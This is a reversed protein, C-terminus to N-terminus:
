ANYLKGIVLSQPSAGTWLTTRHAVDGKGMWCPRRGRKQGFRRLASLYKGENHFIHM